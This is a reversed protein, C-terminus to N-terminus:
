VPVATCFASKARKLTLCRASTAGNSLLLLRAAMEQSFCLETFLIYVDEMIFHVNNIIEIYLMIRKTYNNKHLYLYKEKIKHEKFKRLHKSSM